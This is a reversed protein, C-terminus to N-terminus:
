KKHKPAKQPQIQQRGLLSLATNAVWIASDERVILGVIFWTAGYIFFGVILLPVVSLPLAAAAFGALLAVVNIMLAKLIESLQLANRLIAWSAHVQITFIVFEAILVAIAAGTAGWTGDLAFNAVLSIPVGAMNAMALKRELDLPTLVCLGIFTSLCSFFNVFGIIQVSIVAAAYKESSLLVILPYAFALFYNAIGLSLNFVIGFGRQLLSTYQAPNNKAYYSLRPILVSVIANVVQYCISRLKAALQYFAVQRNNPSLMGLLVSDFSNYIATAISLISFSVLSKRHRRLDSHGLNRFSLSHLLRTINFLNNACAVLALIAGYILWDDQHRVFILMAILSIIKFAVSRITIYEYQETAQFFWEVGYSLLLTSVLFIWMLASLDRLRPVFFICLAFVSLACTTAFTIITLLEKVTKALAKPDDRVRACERIGYTPVGILCIASLWTSISQAFTVNGYGEVSLVRTAYPLTVLGIFMNSATLFTNMVANFKVSRTKM